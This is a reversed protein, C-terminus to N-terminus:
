QSGSGTEPGSRPMIYRGYNLIGGGGGRYGGRAISSHETM